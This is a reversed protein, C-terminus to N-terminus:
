HYYSKTCFMELHFTKHIIFNQTFKISIRLIQSIGGMFFGVIHYRMVILNNLHFKKITLNSQDMKNEEFCALHLCIKSVFLLVVYLIIYLVQIECDVM